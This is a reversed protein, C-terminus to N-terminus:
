RVAVSTYRNGRAKELAILRKAEIDAEAESLYYRPLDFAGGRPSREVMWELDIDRRVQVVTFTTMDRCKWNAVGFVNVKIRFSM